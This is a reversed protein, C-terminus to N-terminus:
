TPVPIAAIRTFATAIQAAWPWGAPIRLKRRRGGRSLQAPVHLMRFRLTKPEARALDPADHLALLQLWCTLDAAIAAIQVWVQNITFERSPLRGLGADKAVRIRDEVRAHARHRAELFGLQGTRTNTVFAQYRWGDAQEFLTLGAGPHPKERRVVLRMGVPWRSLDVLGTLEVVGAQDRPEGDADLAAQWASGPVAHIADHVAIGKHVPFGISYEVSRGRAQNQATLWDLLQHTAGASDARILLRRRYSAPVQAIADSLVSIHDGAHNANANGARLGIALLERTNDCWVALPHFGFGDKFNAAALEKESHATVLTADVDLVVTDALDADAAASAPLGAPLLNWVRRRAKARAKAIRKLAAPTVEDLTRWVAPPSAVPGWLPSHRLTDIDGIAEGGAALVTAVDVLVQGRDHAPAFNRRALAASLGSTLGVQDALLRLAASGALAVVGTGDSTVSLGQSWPNRKM